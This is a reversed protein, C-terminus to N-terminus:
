ALRSNRQRRRGARRCSQVMVVMMVVVKMRGEEVVVVAVVGDLVFVTRGHDVLCHERRGVVSALGIDSARHRRRGGGRM